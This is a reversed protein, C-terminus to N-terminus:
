ESAECYLKRSVHTSTALARMAYATHMFSCEYKCKHKNPAALTKAYINDSVQWSVSALISLELIEFDYRNTLGRSRQFNLYMSTM